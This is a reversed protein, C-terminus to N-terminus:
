VGIGKGVEFALECVPYSLMLKRQDESNEWNGSLVSARFFGSKDIVRRMKVRNTRPTIACKDEFFYLNQCYESLGAVAPVFTGRGAVLNVAGLLTSLDQQLSKSQSVLTLGLRRCLNEIGSVVPNTRSEAVLIVKSWKRSQLILEYFALPPQGYNRPKRSGFVDGARIHIVIESDGHRQVIGRNWLLGRLESWCENVLKQERDVDIGQLSSHNLVILSNALEARSASVAGIFIRLGSDLLHKGQRFIGTQFLVNEPIILFGLNLAKAILLASAIRRTMNGFMGLETVFLGTSSQEINGM